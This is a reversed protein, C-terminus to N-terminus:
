LAETGHYFVFQDRGCVIFRAPIATHELTDALDLGSPRCAAAHDSSPVCDSWEAWNGKVVCQQPPHTHFVIGGGTSQSQTCPIFVRIPTAGTESRVVSTVRIVTTNWSTRYSIWSRACFGQEVFPVAAAPQEYAAYAANLTDRAAGVILVQPPHKEYDVHHHQWTSGIGFLGIVALVLKLHGV